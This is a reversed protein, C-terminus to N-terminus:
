EAPQRSGRRRTLVIGLFIVAAGTLLSSTIKEGLIFHAFLVAFVPQLNSYIATQSNGVRRVSLFWLVMALSLAIAGSYLFCLWAAPSIGSLSFGRWAPLSFPFFLLSGIAMTVATFRLPSHVKLLPRASVSYHAWVIVAVFLLLDGRWTAPSLHLGGGRGSIVLYLGAFGLGIGLWGLPTIREHKFFSSFLSMMIPSMGFIVATNSASTLDFGQIFLAQYITYGSISLLVIKLRDRKPFYCTKEKLFLFVLLVLSALLLRLGNFAMIPFERLAIKILSLNLGWILVVLLMSADNLSIKKGSM